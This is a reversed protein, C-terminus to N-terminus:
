WREIMNMFYSAGAPAGAFLSRYYVKAVSDYIWSSSNKNIANFDSSTTGL